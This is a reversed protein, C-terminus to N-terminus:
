ALGFGKKKFKDFSLVKEEIISKFKVKWKKSNAEREYGNKKL